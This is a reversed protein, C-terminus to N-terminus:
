MSTKVRKALALYIEPEHIKLCELIKKLTFENMEIKIEILTDRSKM